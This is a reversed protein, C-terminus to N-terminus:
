SYISEDDNKQYEFIKIKKRACTVSQLQFPKMKGGAPAVKSPLHEDMTVLLSYLLM